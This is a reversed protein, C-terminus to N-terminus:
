TKISRETKYVRLAFSNVNEKLKKQLTKSSMFFQQFLLKSEQYSM